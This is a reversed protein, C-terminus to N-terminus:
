NSNSQRRKWFLNDKWRKEVDYYNKKNELYNFFNQSINQLYKSFLYDDSNLLGHVIHAAQIGSSIAHGIGISSLPDFSSAADGAPIVNLHPLKTLVQSYAPFMKVDDLELNKMRKSIHLTNQLLDNWSQSNNLHNTNAIDSDTMFMVVMKNDPIPTSYWWGNNTSELLTVSSNDPNYYGEIIGGLGILYDYVKWESSLNRLFTAKKGSAEIIYDAIINIKTEHQMIELHWKDDRKRNIIKSSLFIFANKQKVKDMLMRDFRKRDLNWGNGQATFFYERSFIKETGWSSDIRSSSFHYQSLFNTEVGIYKLLPEIGSSVSEGIRISSYNTSEIIGIKLSTQNLLTLAASCGAPGGGIILVDFEFSTETNDKIM